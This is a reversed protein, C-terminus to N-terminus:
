DIKLAKRVDSRSLYENIVPYKALIQPQGAMWVLYTEDVERLVEGKHKGFPVETSELQVFRADESIRDQKPPPPPTPAPADQKQVKERKAKPKPKAAEQVPFPLVNQNPDGAPKAPLGNAETPAPPTKGAAKDLQDLDKPYAFFANKWGHMGMAADGRLGVRGCNTEPHYWWSYNTKVSSNSAMSCCARPPLFEMNDCIFELKAAELVELFTPTGPAITPAFTTAPPPTTPNSSVVPAPDGKVDTTDTAPSPAATPVPPKMSDPLSLNPVPQAIAQWSGSYFVPQPTNINVRPDWQKSHRWIACCMKFIEFEAVLMEPRYMVLDVRGPETTSIYINAGWCYKLNEEKWYAAAYAAIQMAEGDYPECPEGPKTKRSKYDLVGIGAGKKWRFPCDSTGAYGYTQNVIVAEPNEVHIDKSIMWNIVPSVYTGFKPDAMFEEKWDHKFFREIERHISSGLKAADDVQRFAEEIIRGSFYEDTEEGKRTLRMSALAVQKVKWKELGPKGLVGKIESVSPLLGLRKADALTTPREGEGSALKMTHLPKGDLTYWHFSPAASKTLVAM